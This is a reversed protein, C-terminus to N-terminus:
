VAEQKAAARRGHRNLAVPQALKHTKTAGFEIRGDKGIVVDDLSREGSKLDRIVAALIGVHEQLNYNRETLHGIVEQANM